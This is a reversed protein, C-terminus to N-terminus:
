DNELYDDVTGIITSPYRGVYKSLLEQLELFETSELNDMGGGVEFLYIRDNDHWAWLVYGKKMIKLISQNNIHDMITNSESRSQSLYIRTNIVMHENDPPIVATFVRQRNSDCSYFSQKLTFKVPDSGTYELSADQFEKSHCSEGIGFYFGQEFLFGDSSYYRSETVESYGFYSDIYSKSLKDIDAIEQPTTDKSDRNTTELIFANNLASPSTSYVIKATSTGDKVELIKAYEEGSVSIKSDPYNKNIWKKIFSAMDSEMTIKTFTMAADGICSYEMKSYKYYRDGLYGFDESINESQCGEGIGTLFFWKGVEGIKFGTVNRQVQVTPTLDEEILPEDPIAPMETTDNIINYEETSNDSLNQIRDPDNYRICGSFVIVTAILFLILLQRLRM